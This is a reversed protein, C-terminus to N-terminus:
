SNTLNGGLHRVQPNYELDMWIDVESPPLEFFM